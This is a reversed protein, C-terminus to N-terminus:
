KAAVQRDSEVHKAVTDPELHPRLWLREIIPYSAVIPLIALAGPVGAVLGGAMLSILVTLTSLRLKNGYVRPAIVYNEFLHYALYLVFVLGATGSSVSLAVAVAPIVSLFFGIIPLIDFLGALIALLGANPVDLSYLLIFVYISCLASTIFQGVMYSFVVSAIEPAAVAMKLRHTKPVFALLWGSVREGDVLFYVALVLIVLFNVVSQVAIKGYSLFQKLWVERNTFSQSELLKNTLNRLGSLQKPLKQLLEEKLTPLNKIISGGEHSVTPVLVGFFLVVCALLVIASVAVGTWKPWGRKRTWIVIPWLTIAILLAFFLLELLLWLQLCLYVILSAALVRLIAAWSVTIEVRERPLEEPM